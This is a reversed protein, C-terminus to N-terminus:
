AEAGPASPLTIYFCSGTEVQPLGAPADLSIRGGHRQIVTHVFALGLGSGAINGGQFPQFMRSKAEPDFGPGEDAITMTIDDGRRFLDCRVRGGTPTHRIANDMLNIMVRRLLSADGEILYDYGDEPSSLDVGKAAAQPWMMDAAETLLLGLDVVEFRLMQSEARSLQVYGDALSLTQQANARIRNEFDEPRKTNDLLTLISVQPARMDHGLLQLTRERQRESARLQTVDAFRVINGASQGEVDTLPATAVQLARGDNLQIDDHGEEGSMLHRWDKHGLANFLTALTADKLVAEGFLKRARANAVLVKDDMDAIVAADPLSRVSQTIFRNFDKLQKLATSLARVQRSVEDGSKWVPASSLAALQRSDSDDRLNSLEAQMYGYAAALRRWSWLPWAILVGFVAAMPPWWWGAKLAIASAVLTALLLALGLLTNGAPKLTVFGFLMLALPLVSLATKLWLPVSQPASQEILTQLLAAQIVVGPTLSNDRSRSTAFRDGMGHAIAGVLVLRDRLFAPDIEGNLVDVFSVLRFDADPSPYRILLPERAELADIPAIDPPTLADSGLITRALPLVLHGVKHEGATLWLPLHRVTGDQDPTLMVHGLSASAAAVAPVPQDVQYAAGNLGPASLLAPLHVNGAQALAQALAEDGERPEMFLVDYAVPGSQAEHLAQVLRAHVDRPWPWPGIANLSRDDIGIVVIHDSAEVPTLRSLTDYLVHDTRETLNALSLWVVVAMSIVATLAWEALVRAAVRTGVDPRPQAVAGRNQRDSKSM